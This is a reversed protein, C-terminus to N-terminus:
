VYYQSVTLLQALRARAAEIHGPDRTANVGAPGGAAGEARFGTIVTRAVDAAQQAAPTRALARLLELDELGDRYRELRASAIPGSRGPYILIGDGNSFAGPDGPVARANVRVASFNTRTSSGPLLALTRHSSNHQPGGDTGGWGNVLYYLWGDVREVGAFWGLLRADPGPYELFTNLFRVPETTPWPRPSICHYGWAERGTRSARFLDAETANWLSYLNVWTDIPLSPPPAWRLTAVTRLRPFRAKIAGFLQDIGPAFSTPREDFGYVYAGDLLGAADLQSVLPELLALTMNVEEQTYSPKVVGGGAVTAVDLLNYRGGGCAALLKYDELPRLKQIYPDDAPVGAECLLAFYARKVSEPLTGGYYKALDTAGDQDSRYFLNFITGYRKNMPPLAIPWVTLQIPVTLAEAGVRLHLEPHSSGPAAGAGVHLRIWFSHVLEAELPVSDAFYTADLLADPQWGATSAEPYIDSKNCWVHVVKRWDTTVHAPLGSVNPAAAVVPPAGAPLVLHLQFAEIEGQQASITAARVPAAPPTEHLHVKELSSTIWWAPAAASTTIIVAIFFTFRSRHM